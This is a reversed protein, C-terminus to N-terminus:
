SMVLDFCVTINKSTRNDRYEFKSYMENFIIGYFHRTSTIVENNIGETIVITCFLPTDRSTWNCGSYLYGSQMGVCM